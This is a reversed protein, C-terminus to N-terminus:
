KEILKIMEGIIEILEKMKPVITKYTSITQKVDNEIDNMRIIANKCNYIISQAYPLTDYPKIDHLLPDLFFSKFIDLGAGGIVFQQYKEITSIIFNSEEKDFNRECRLEKSLINPIEDILDKVYLQDKYGKAITANNIRVLEECFIGELLDLYFNNKNYKIIWQNNSKFKHGLAEFVGRNDINKLRTFSNTPIRELYIPKILNKEQKEINKNIL